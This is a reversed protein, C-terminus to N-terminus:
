LGSTRPNNYKVPIAARMEPYSSTDNPDAKVMKAVTVEHEGAVAGDGTKYTSLVFNGDADTTATAQRAAAPMFMVQAGEVPQGQYVVEGTAHYARPQDSGGCGCGAAAATVAVAILTQSM